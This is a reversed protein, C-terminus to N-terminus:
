TIGSVLINMDDSNILAVNQFLPILDFNLLLSIGTCAQEAIIVRYRLLLPQWWRSVAILDKRIFLNPPQARAIEIQVTGNARVHRVLDFARDMLVLVLGNVHRM